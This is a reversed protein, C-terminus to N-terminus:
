IGNRQKLLNKFKKINRKVYIVGIKEIKIRIFIKLLKIKMVEYSESKPRFRPTSFM